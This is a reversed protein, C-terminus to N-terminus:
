EEYVERGRIFLWWFAVGSLLVIVFVAEIGLIMLITDMPDKPDVKVPPHDDMDTPDTGGRYEQLNTFGDGDYDEGPGHYINGFYRIEWEDPLEDYDQREPPMPDNTDLPNSGGKMEELESYGDGDYDGNPGRLLHGFYEMEWSDLLGDHDSDLPGMPDYPDTPDSNNNFEDIESHGDGDYDGNPGQDLNGFYEIEWFDLLGDGDKDEQNVPDDIDMPDSGNKYEQYNTFGDGDEDDNPHSENDGFHDSEWLDPLSDNDLDKWEDWESPEGSDSINKKFENYRTMLESGDLAYNYISVEDIICNAGYDKDNDEGMVFPDNNVPLTMNMQERTDLEGNLYFIVNSGDFTISIHSWRNRPLSTESQFDMDRKNEESKSFKLSGDDWNIYIWYCNDRYHTGGKKLLSDFGVTGNTPYIWMMFTYEREIDLSDGRGCNIHDLNGQFLVGSGNIGEYFRSSRSLIGDNGHGSLDDVIRSGNESLTWYGVMDKEPLIDFLVLESIIHEGDSIDLGVELMGLDLGNPVTGSIIGSPSLEMWEPGTVKSITIEEFPTDPDVVRVSTRFSENMYIRIPDVPSCMIPRIKESWDVEVPECLPHHDKAGSNVNIIYPHDWCEGDNTVNPYKQQYDSWYNGPGDTLNWDVADIENEGQVGGSGCGIFNNHHITVNKSKDVMIGYSSCNKITNKFIEMGWGACVYIGIEGGTIFNHSLTTNEIVEYDWWFSFTISSTISGEEDENKFHNNVIMVDRVSNPGYFVIHYGENEFHNSQIRVDEISRTGFRIHNMARNYFSCNIVNTHDGEYDFYISVKPNDRFRCNLVNLYSASVWIGADYAVLGSRGSTENHGSNQITLDMISVMDHMVKITSNVGSGDIFTKNTGEGIITIAKDIFINESYTGSHVMITDGERAFAIAEGISTADGDPGVEITDIDLASVDGIYFDSDSTIFPIALISVIGIIVMERMTCRDDMHCIDIQNYM